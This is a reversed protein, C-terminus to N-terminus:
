PITEEAEILFGSAALDALMAIVDASIEARDATYKEALLDVIEAVRRKGDCLQLIEVATDDPALVREPVLIVWRQRSEDFRLRAFRALRPITAEGIQARRKSAPAETM